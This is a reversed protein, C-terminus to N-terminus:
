RRVHNNEKRRPNTAADMLDAVERKLQSIWDKLPGVAENIASAVVDATDDLRLHLGDM